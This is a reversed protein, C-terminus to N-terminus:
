LSFTGLIIIGWYIPLVSYAIIKLDLGRFIKLLKKLKQM